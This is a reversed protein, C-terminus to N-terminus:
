QCQTKKGDQKSGYQCVCENEKTLRHQDGVTELIKQGLNYGVGVLLMKHSAYCGICPQCIM